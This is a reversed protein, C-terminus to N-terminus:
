NSYRKAQIGFILFLIVDTKSGVSERIKKFAINMQREITNKSINLYDAIEINTLGEKKSLLFIEKCKPPLEQIAEKVLVILKEMTDNDQEVIGDLEEIYKKELATVMQNKKYENICANYVSKYLYSKLSLDPRLNDRKEWVNIFVNQVIDESTGIDNILSNAYLCLKHNYNEVLDVYANEDGRKLQLILKSNEFPNNIM